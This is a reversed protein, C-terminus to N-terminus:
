KLNLFVISFHSLFELFPIAISAATAKISTAPQCNPTLPVSTGYESFSTAISNAISALPDQMDQTAHLHVV